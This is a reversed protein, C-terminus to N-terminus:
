CYFLCIQHVSGILLEKRRRTMKKIAIERRTATSRSTLMERYIMEVPQRARTYKAGIKNKSNHEQERRVVDTTIGTYLSDDACRLIYVYWPSSHRIKAPKVTM